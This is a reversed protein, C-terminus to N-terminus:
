KSAGISFYSSVNTVKIATTVLVYFDLWFGFDKFKQQSKLGTRAMKQCVKQLCVTKKYPERCLWSHRQSQMLFPLIASLIISFIQWIICASGSGVTAVGRSHPLLWFCNQCPWFYRRLLMMSRKMGHIFESELTKSQPQQSGCCDKTAARIYVHWINAFSSM